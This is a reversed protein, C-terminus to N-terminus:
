GQGTSGLGTTIISLVYSTILYAGLVIVLGIISHIMLNRAKAVKDSNGLSLMWQVGAWIILVMFVIGVLSLIANVVRGAVTAVSDNTQPLRNGAAGATEKLGYDQAQLPTQIIVFCFSILMLSLVLSLIIKNM